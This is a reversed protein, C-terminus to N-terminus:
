FNILCFLFYVDKNDIGLHQANEDLFRKLEDHREKSFMARFEIEIRKKNDM